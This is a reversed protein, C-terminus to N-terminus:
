FLAGQLQAVETQVPVDGVEVAETPLEPKDTVTCGPCTTLLTSDEQEEALAFWNPCRDCSRARGGYTEVAAEFDAASRIVGGDIEIREAGGAALIDAVEPISYARQESELVIARKEELSNANLVVDTLKVTQREGEPKERERNGILVAISGVRPIGDALAILATKLTRYLLLGSESFLEDHKPNLAGFDIGDSDFLWWASEYDHLGPLRAINRMMEKIGHFDHGTAPGTSWAGMGSWMKVLEFERDGLPGPSRLHNLRLIVWIPITAAHFAIDREAKARVASNWKRAEIFEPPQVADAATGCPWDEDAPTLGRKIEEFEAMGAHCEAHIPVGYSMFGEYTPNSHSVLRNCIFCRLKDDEKITNRVPESM